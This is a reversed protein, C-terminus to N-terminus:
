DGDFHVRKRVQERRWVLNGLELTWIDNNEVEVWREGDWLRRKGGRVVIETGGEDELLQATHDWIWGPEEGSTKLKEMEWTGIKLRLVQTRRSEGVAFEGVKEEDYANESVLDDSDVGAEGAMKLINRLNPGYGLTGVVYIWEGVMTASHFDTPPFVSVPYGYVEVRGDEEPYCVFVDNYICFDPDYFDEHEGGILVVRGTGDRLETFSQGYRDACWVPRKYRQELGGCKQLEDQFRKAADYAQKGSRIMVDWLRERIREPNANGFKSRRWGHEFEEWTLGEILANCEEDTYSNAPLNLYLRRLRNYEMLVKKRTVDREIDLGYQVLLKLMQRSRTSQFIPESAWLAFPSGGEELAKTATTIDDAWIAEYLAEDAESRSPLSSLKSARKLNAKTEGVSLGYRNTPLTYPIQSNTPPPKLISKARKTITRHRRTPRPIEKEETQEVKCIDESPRPRSEPPEPPPFPTSSPPPPSRSTSRLKSISLTTLPLDTTSLQISQPLKANQKEGEGGEVRKRLDNRELENAGDGDKDEDKDLSNSKLDNLEVDQEGKALAQSRRPM